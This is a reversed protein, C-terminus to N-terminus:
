INPEPIAQPRRALSARLRFCMNEGTTVSTSFHNYAIGSGIILGADLDGGPGDLFVVARKLGNVVRAFKVGDDPEFEGVVYILYIDSTASYRSASIQAAQCRYESSGIAALLATIILLWSRTSNAIRLLMM